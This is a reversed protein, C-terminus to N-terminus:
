TYNDDEQSKKEFESELGLVYAERSIDIEEPSPKLEMILKIPVKNVVEDFLILKSFKNRGTLKGNKKVNEYVREYEKKYEEFSLVDWQCVKDATEFYFSIEKQSVYFTENIFQNQKKDM